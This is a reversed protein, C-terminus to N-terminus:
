LHMGQIVRDSSPTASATILDDHVVCGDQQVPHLLLQRGPGVVLTQALDEELQYGMRVTYVTRQTGPAAHECEHDDDEEEVLGVEQLDVCLVDVVEGLREGGEVGALLLTGELGKQQNTEERKEEHRVQLRQQQLTAETAGAPTGFSDV